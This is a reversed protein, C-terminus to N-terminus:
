VVDVAGFFEFDVGSSSLVRKPRIVFLIYERGLQFVKVYWHHYAYWLNPVVGKCPVDLKICLKFVIQINTAVSRVTNHAM